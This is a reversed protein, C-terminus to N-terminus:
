RANSKIYDLLKQQFEKRSRRSISVREKNYLVIYEKYIEDVFALNVFYTKHCRFFCGELLITEWEIMTNKSQYTYDKTRVFTNNDGSEIYQINKISIVKQIGEINLVVKSQALEMLAVEMCNVLDHPKLPKLLYRFAKVEFANQMMEPHSTLFTILTDKSKQKLLRAIEMGNMGPMEFDLFILFIDGKYNLLEEGSTFKVVKYLLNHEVRYKELLEFVKERFISVDDCIAITMM